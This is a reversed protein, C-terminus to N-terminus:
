DITEKTTKQAEQGVPVMLAAAYRVFLERLGGAIPEVIGLVACNAGFWRVAASLRRGDYGNLDLGMSELWGACEEVESVLPPTTTAHKM